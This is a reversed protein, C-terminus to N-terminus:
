QCRGIGDDTLRENVDEKIREDTRAYGKPGKGRHENQQDRDRRHQANEDGFWGSVEDKTKDWWNRSNDSRGYSGQRNETETTTHLTASTEIKTPVTGTEMVAMTGEEPIEKAITVTERMKTRGTMVLVGTGTTIM